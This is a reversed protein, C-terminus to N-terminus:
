VLWARCYECRGPRQGYVENWGGCHWCKKRPVSNRESYYEEEVTVPGTRIQRKLIEVLSGEAIDDTKLDGVSFHTANGDADFHLVVFYQKYIYHTKPYYTLEYDPSSWGKEKKVLHRVVWAWSFVLHMSSYPSVIEYRKRFLGKGWESMGVQDLLRRVMPDLRAVTRRIRLGTEQIKEREERKRKEQQMREAEREAVASKFDKKRSM